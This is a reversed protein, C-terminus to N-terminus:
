QWIVQGYREGAVIAPNETIRLDHFKRPRTSHIRSTVPVPKCITCARYEERRRARM